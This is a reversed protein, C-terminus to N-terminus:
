SYISGPVTLSPLFYCVDPDTAGHYLAAGLVEAGKDRVVM